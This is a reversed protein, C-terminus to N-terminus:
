KKEFVEEIDKKAVDFKKGFVVAILKALNIDIGRPKLINEVISVLEVCCVFLCAWKAISGEGHAAVDVVSM